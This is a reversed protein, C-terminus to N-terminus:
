LGKRGHLERLFRITEATKAREEPDADILTIVHHEVHAVIMEREPGSDPIITITEGVRLTKRGLAADHLRDNEPLKAVTMLAAFFLTKAARRQEPSVQEEDVEFTKAAIERWIDDSM